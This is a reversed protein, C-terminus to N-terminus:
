KLSHMYVMASSIDHATGIKELIVETAKKKGGSLSGRIGKTKKLASKWKRVRTELTDYLRDLVIFYGDNFADVNAVARMKILHPHNMVALFRAEIALDITGKLFLAPNKKCDESLMKIAYRAEGGRMCRTSMAERTQYDRMEPKPGEIISDDLNIGIIENVVCFGGRGLVRGLELEAM